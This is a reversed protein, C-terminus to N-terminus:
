FFFLFVVCWYELIFLYEVGSFHVFLLQMYVLPHCSFQRCVRRLRCQAPGCWWLSSASVVPRRFLRGSSGSRPTRTHRPDHLLALRYCPRRERRCHRNGCEIASADHCLGCASCLGYDYDCDLCLGFVVSWILLYGFNVIFIVIALLM